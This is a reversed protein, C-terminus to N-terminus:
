WKAVEAQATLPYVLRIIGCGRFRQAAIRPDDLDDITYHCSLQVPLTKRHNHRLPFGNGWDFLPFPDAALLQAPLNPRFHLLGGFRYRNAPAPGM